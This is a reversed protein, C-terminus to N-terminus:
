AWSASGSGNGIAPIPTRTILRARKPKTGCSGRAGRSAHTWPRHNRLSAKLRRMTSCRGVAAAANKAYMGKRRITVVSVSCSGTQWDPSPQSRKGSCCPSPQERDAKGGDTAAQLFRGMSSPSVSTVLPSGGHSRRFSVRRNNSVVDCRNAFRDCSSTQSFVGCGPFLGRM